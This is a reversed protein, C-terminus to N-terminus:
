QMDFLTNTDTFFTNTPYHITFCFYEFNGQSLDLINSMAAVEAMFVMGMFTWPLSGRNFDVSSNCFTHSYVIFNILKFIMAGQLLFRDILHM